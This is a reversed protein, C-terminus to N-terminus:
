STPPNKFKQWCAPCRWEPHQRGHEDKVLNLRWGHRATILTINTVTPPSLVGCAVCLHRQRPVEEDDDVDM